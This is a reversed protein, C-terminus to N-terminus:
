SQFLLIHALISAFHSIKSTQFPLFREPSNVLQKKERLDDLVSDSGFLKCTSIMKGTVLAFSTVTVLM